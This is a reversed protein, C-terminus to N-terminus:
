RNIGEKSYSLRIYELVETIKNKDSNRTMIGFGEQQGYSEVTTDDKNVHFENEEDEMVKHLKDNHEVILVDEDEM